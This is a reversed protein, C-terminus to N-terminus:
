QNQSSQQCIGPIQSGHQLPLITALATSASATAAKPAAGPHKLGLIYPCGSRSLRGYDAILATRAEWLRRLMERSLTSIM